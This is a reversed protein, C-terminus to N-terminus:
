EGKIALEEAKEYGGQQSVPPMTGLAAQNKKASSDVPEEQKDSAAVITAGAGESEKHSRVRKPPGSLLGVVLVVALIVLLGISAAWM